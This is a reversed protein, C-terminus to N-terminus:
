GGPKAALREERNRKTIARLLTDIDDPLGGVAAVMKFHAEPLPLMTLEIGELLYEENDNIEMITDIIGREIAAVPSVIAPHTRQYRQLRRDVYDMDSESLERALVFSFTIEPILGVVTTVDDLEYGAESLLTFLTSGRPDEQLQRAISLPSPPTVPATVIGLAGKVLSWGANAKDVIHEWVTLRGVEEARTSLQQAAAPSAAALLAALLAIQATRPM